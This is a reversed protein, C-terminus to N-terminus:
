KLIVCKRVATFEGAEGSVSLRYFYAGSALEEATFQAKHFGATKMENVLTKVERGLMDYVKLTVFGSKPLDYSITTVPNFPNPFNQSLRFKDPTAIVLLKERENKAKLSKLLANIKYQKLDIEEFTNGAILNDGAGASLIERNILAHIGKPLNSNNAYIDEYDGLAEEKMGQKVKCQIAIDEAINRTIETYATDAALDSCYAELSSYESSTAQKKMLCNFIRPLCAPASSNGASTDQIIEKYVAIADDYEGALASKYAALMLEQLSSPNDADYFHVTDYIGFGISDLITSNTARASSSNNDYPM